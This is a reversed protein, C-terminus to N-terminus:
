ARGTVRAPSPDWARPKPKAERVQARVLSNAVAHRSCRVFRAIDRLGNGQAALRRIERERKPSIRRVRLRGQRTLWSHSVQQTTATIGKFGGGQQDPQAQVVGPVESAPCPTVCSTAQPGLNARLPHPQPQRVQHVSTPPQRLQRLQRYRSPSKRRQPHPCPSRHSPPSPTATPTSTNFIFWFSEPTTPPQPHRGHFPSPGSLLLVQRGQQRQVPQGAMCSEGAIRRSRVRVAQGPVDLPRDRRRHSRGTRLKVGPITVLLEIAWRHSELLLAVEAFIYTTSVEIGDIHGLCDAVIVAHRRDFNGALAERLQPVKPRLRGKALEALVNPDKIGAVLGRAHGRGVQVTGDVCRQELKVGADQPEKELRQITRPRENVLARRYHTLSRLQAFM